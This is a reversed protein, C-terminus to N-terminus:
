TQVMEPHFYIDIGAEADQDEGHDEHVVHGVTGSFRSVPALLLLKEPDQM